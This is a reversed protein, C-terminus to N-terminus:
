VARVWEVIRDVGDTVHTCLARLTQESIAESEPMARVVELAKAGDFDVVALRVTLEEAPRGFDTGPLVAVGTQDLLQAALDVSTRVGRAALQDRMPGFDPFLYFAGDPTEIQAHAARLTRLCHATLAALFRRTGALYREIEPGGQFARVAAYQIPASTSTFTESAVVAMADRVAALETPFSFTGLRWGGAGCWKSLGGSVITRDPCIRGISVHAGDFRLEGYIEDSLIVVDHERAVRALTVLHDLDYSTGTPNAPYNLLLLRPTSSGGSRCLAELRAPDVRWHDEARTPLALMRRSAIASQPVYSVWAPTPVIIDGDFVLQLLFLLEKSGPGVLVSEPARQVGHRRGHYSAVAERLAPLGRVPLYAKHSANARLAEVVVMPVPFPSQGLGLRYVTRGARSLETCREQVALTASTAVGAARPDIRIFPESISM